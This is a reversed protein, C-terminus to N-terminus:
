CLEILVLSVDDTPPGHRWTEVDDLIAQKMEAFPRRAAKEMIERLGDVGLMEERHDFV